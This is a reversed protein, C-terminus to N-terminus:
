SVIDKSLSCKCVTREDNPKFHILKFLGDRRETAPNGTGARGDTRGDEYAVRTRSM